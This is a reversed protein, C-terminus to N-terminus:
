LNLSHLCVLNSRSRSPTGQSFHKHDFYKLNAISTAAHATLRNYNLARTHLSTMAMCSPSKAALAHLRNIGAEINIIEKISLVVMLTIGSTIIDELIHFLIYKKNKEIEFRVQSTNVFTKMNGILSWNEKRILDKRLNAPPHYQFINLQIDFGFDLSKDIVCFLEYLSDDNIDIYAM